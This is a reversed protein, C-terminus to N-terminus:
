NQPHHALSEVRVPCDFSGKATNIIAQALPTQAETDVVLGEFGPYSAISALHGISELDAADGRVSGVLGYMGTASCALVPRHALLERRRPSVFSVRLVPYDQARVFSCGWRRKYGYLGGMLLPPTTGLSFTRMGLEAARGLAHFDLQANLARLLKGDTVSEHVGVRWVEARSQRKSLLLAYGGVTINAHSFLFVEGSKAVKAYDQQSPVHASKHHRRKISPLLLTDYFYNHDTATTAQRVALGWAHARKLARRHDKSVQTSLFTDCNSPVRLEASATPPLIYAAKAAGRWVASDVVVLDDQAIQQRRVVKRNRLLNGSGIKQVDHLDSFFLLQMDHLLFPRGLFLITLVPGGERFVGRLRFTEPMAPLYTDCINKLPRRLRRWIPDPQMDVSDFVM